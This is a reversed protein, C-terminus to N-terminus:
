IGQRFRNLRQFGVPIRRGQGERKHQNHLFVHLCRDYAIYKTKFLLSTNNQKNYKPHYKKKIKKNSLINYNQSIISLYM